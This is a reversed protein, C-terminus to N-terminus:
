HDPRPRARGYDVDTPMRRQTFRRETRAWEQDRPPLFYRSQSRYVQVERAGRVRSPYYQGNYEYLVVPSWQRYNVRWDGYVDPYYGYLDVGTGFQASASVSTSTYYGPGCGGLLLLGGLAPLAFWKSLRMAVVEM